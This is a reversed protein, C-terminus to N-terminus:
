CPINYALADTKQGCVTQQLPNINTTDAAPVSFSYAEAGGGRHMTVLVISYAAISIQQTHWPSFGFLQNQPSVQAVQNVGSKNVFLLSLAQHANDVTAFADVPDHQVQLPLLNHQLHSYLQFVRYM